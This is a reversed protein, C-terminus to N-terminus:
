GVLPRFRLPEAVNKVQASRADGFSEPEDLAIVFSDLCLIENRTALGQLRAANNMASGFGTYNENPGVRGVFLRGFNLGTAVGVPPEIGKLAAIEVGDNFAATLERIRRAADAARACAEKPSMEFFPPGFLAIVCDGVMKDFVGGLEFVVEVVRKSWADVLGAILAPERLIQESIRTFGSLDAFLMAVERERPSLLAKDHDEIGLLREVTARPFSLALHRYQRAHDVLRQRLVDSFRELVDRDFISLEGRRSTVILKGLVRKDRVGQILAEERFRTIGIRALLASADGHIMAAAHERIFRDVSVSGVIEAEHTLVGGQIIRFTLRAGHATHEDRVVLLLDDFTVASKLVELAADIGRDLVPDMLADSLERAVISKKRFIAIFALQNDILEAFVHILATVRAIEEDSAMRSLRLAICGFLEGAVDLHEGIITAGEARSVFAERAGTAAQVHPLWEDVFPTETPYGFARLALNEDYSQLLAADSGSARCLQDLLRPVYAELPLRDRLAEELLEDVATALARQALLEDRGLEASM